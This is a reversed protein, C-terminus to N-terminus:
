DIAIVFSGDTTDLQSFTASTLARGPANSSESTSRCSWRSADDWPAFVIRRALSLGFLPVAYLHEIGASVADPLDFPLVDACQLVRGEKEGRGSTRGRDKKEPLRDLGGPLRRREHDPRGSWVHVHEYGFGQPRRR